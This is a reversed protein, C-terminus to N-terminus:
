IRSHFSHPLFALVLSVLFLAVLAGAAAYAARRAGFGRIRQSFAIVGFHAWLLLSALVEPNSYAFGPSKEAHALGIGVNLGVTLGIFGFLAARRTMTALLDLSPLHDFLAGFRRERMERLLLIYLAGHVGSLVLAASAIVSTAVHAIQFPGMGSERAHPQIPGFASACLQALFVLGLAIGGSGPHRTLRAVLAYLAATSFAIASVTTGLDNIPFQGIELGCLLFYTAHVVLAVRLLNRRLGGVKPAREGAFAMGHLIACLAYLVPLLVGLAQIMTSM